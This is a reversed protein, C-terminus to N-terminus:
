PARLLEADHRSEVVTRTGPALRGDGAFRPREDDIQSTALGLIQAVRMFQPRRPEQRLVHAFVARRGPVSAQGIQRLSGQALYQSAFSIL